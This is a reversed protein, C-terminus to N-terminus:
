GGAEIQFPKAWTLLLPKSRLDVGTRRVILGASLDTETLLDDDLSGLLDTIRQGDFWAYGGPRAVAGRLLVQNGIEKKIAAVVLRDGDFLAQSLDKSNDLDVQVRTVSSQGPVRREISASKAYGSALLGGSMQLLDGLTDSPLTEYIAPRKLRVM